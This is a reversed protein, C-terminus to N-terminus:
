SLQPLFLILCLFFSSMLLLLRLIISASFFHPLAEPLSRVIAVSVVRVYVVVLCFSFLVLVFLFVVVCVFVTLPLDVALTYLEKKLLLCSNDTGAQKNAQPKNYQSSGTVNTPLSNGLTTATHIGGFM